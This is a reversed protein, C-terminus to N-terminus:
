DTAVLVIGYITANEKAEISFSYYRSRHLNLRKEIYGIREKSGDSLSFSESRGEADTVRLSVSAGPSTRILCRALKKKQDWKDFSILDSELKATIEKEGSDSSDTNKSQSFLYMKNKKFFGLEGNYEFFNDAGIGKFSFWAKADISYILATGETDSPDCFWLEGRKRHHHAIATKCFSDSLLESVPRSICTARYEGEEYSIPDWKFIGYRSVTVPTDDSVVAGGPSSCGTGMSVRTLSSQGNALTRLMFARDATFVMLGDDKQCVDTIPSQGDNAYIVNKSAVYIKSLDSYVKECFEFESESIPRSPYIATKDEGDYFAASIKYVGESGDGYAAASQCQAVPRRIGDTDELTIFVMVDDGDSFVYKSTFHHNIESLTYDDPSSPKGNIFVADISQADFPLWFGSSTSGEVHYSVRLRSSLMNLPELVDGGRTPDWGKGYLPVYGEVRSLSENSYIYVNNGDLLYINGGFSLFSSKEATTTLTAVARYTRATLDVSYLKHDVLVLMTDETLQHIARVDGPLSAFLEFGCRKEIAGDFRLRFDSMTKICGKKSYAGFGNIGEFGDFEVSDYARSLDINAM